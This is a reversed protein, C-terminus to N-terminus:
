MHTSRMRCVVTTNMNGSCSQCEWHRGIQMQESFAHKFVM